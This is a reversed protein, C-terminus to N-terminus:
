LPPLVVVPFGVRLLADEKADATITIRAVVGDPLNVAAVDGVKWSTSQKWDGEGSSQIWHPHGTGLGVEVMGEVVLRSQDGAERPVPVHLLGFQSNFVLAPCAGGVRCAQQQWGDPLTLILPAVDVDEVEEEPPPQFSQPPLVDHPAPAPAPPEPLGSGDDELLQIRNDDDLTLNKAKLAESDSKDLKTVTEGRDEMLQVVNRFGTDNGMDMRGM